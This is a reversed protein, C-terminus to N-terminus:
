GAGLTSDRDWLHVDTRYVMTARGDAGAHRAHLDRLLRQLEAFRPGTKPVTSTSRARGLLEELTLPQANPVRHTRPNEFWGSASVAAADFESREAPAEGDIAELAARYGLTFADGRSRRNWVIALRGGPRLIRHFERLAARPEFWHFAQAVLVIDVSAADLGTADAVGEQWSVRAHPAAAARMGANPEVAVVRVGRDALLRASIGTGAGVDAAILDDPAGLGELVVDIAAAPYTPRFRAYDAARDTFRRTSDPDDPEM